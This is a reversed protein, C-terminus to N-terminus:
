HGTSHRTLMKNYNKKVVIKIPQKINRLTSRKEHIIDLVQLPFEHQKRKCWDAAEGNSPAEVNYIDYSIMKAVLIVINSLSSSLDYYGLCVLGNDFVNPHFINSKFHFSPISKPYDDNLVVEVLFSDEIVPLQGNLKAIGKVNYELLYKTPPNGQIYRITFFENRKSLNIVGKADNTLRLIRIKSFSNGTPTDKLKQSYEAIIIAESLKKDADKSFWDLCHTDSISDPIPCNNLRIPILYISGEPIQQYIELATKLETQVFGRKSISKNSLCAIFFDCKKIAKNIEYKWNQGPFLDKNDVWVSHGKKELSAIVSSVLGVDERAYSLFITAM